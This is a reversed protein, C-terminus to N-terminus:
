INADVDLAIRDLVTIESGNQEIIGATRLKSLERNITQRSCGVVTALDSQTERIKRSTESLIYLHSRLRKEVAGFQGIHKLWNDKLLRKHFIKTINKVFGYTKLAKELKARSYFLLTASDSTTCTAACPGGTITETEGLTLGPRVRLLFLQRGDEGVYTVDVHGHAVLIISDASEGQELVVTEADYIKVSCADMFDSAFEVDLDDFIESKLLHPFRVCNKM